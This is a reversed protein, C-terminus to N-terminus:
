MTRKSKLMDEYGPKGEIITMILQQLEGLARRDSTTSCKSYYYQFVDEKMRITMEYNGLSLISCDIREFTETGQLNLSEVKNYIQSMEAPTFTLAKEEGDGNTITDTFTSITTGEHFRIEVDFNSKNTFFGSLKESGFFGWQEGKIVAFMFVLILIIGFSILPACWRRRYRKRPMEDAVRERVHDKMRSTFNFGDLGEDTMKRIQRQLERDM